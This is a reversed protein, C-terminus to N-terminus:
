AVEARPPKTDKSAAGASGAPLTFFFTTGNGPTSEVWIRGGHREVIRQCISLGIGFGKLERDSHLRKFIHFVNEIQSEAIGVGNDQVSFRWAEGDKEASVVIEPTRDAARYKVANGILNQLLSFAQASDVHIRPLSSVTIRARAADIESRLHGIVENAVDNMDQDTFELDESSVRSFELLNYVLASCRLASERAIHVYEEAKGTIGDSYQTEVLELFSITNGLPTQLDHTVIQAFQELDENSRALDQAKAQLEANLAELESTRAKVQRNLLWSYGALLALLLVLGGMMLAPILWQPLVEVDVSLVYKQLIRERESATIQSLGENLDRLLTENGKAVAANLHKAYLTQVVRFADPIGFKNLYYMGVPHDAVFAMVDGSQAADVLLLNNAFTKLTVAPYNTRVFEEEFGGKTIGVPITGIDALTDVALKSSVFLRTSLPMLDVSFDLYTKRQPSKFLGGHLDAAGDKVQDLSDQWDVLKFRVDRGTVEGFKRWLDILIGRPTGDEDLYAFPPWAADQSVVLPGKSPDAGAREPALVLVALALLVAAAALRRFSNSSLSYELSWLGRETQKRGEYKEQPM